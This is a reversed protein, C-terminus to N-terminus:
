SQATGGWAVPVLARIADSCNAFCTSADGWKITTDNWLLDAVKDMDTTTLATCTNFLNYMDLVKVGFGSRPLLSYVSCNLARCSYFLGKLLEPEAPFRPIIFDTKILSVCENFTHQASIINDLWGWGICRKLNVCGAFLNSINAAQKRMRCNFVNMDILRRAGRCINSFNTLHSAVPLDIDFIRSIINSQVNYVNADNDAAIAFYSNGYIKVIYKKDVETYKHVYRYYRNGEEGTIQEEPYDKLCDVTGDGWDICVNQQEPLQESRISFTHTDKAMIPYANTYAGQTYEGAAFDTSTPYVEFATYDSSTTASGSIDTFTNDAKKIRIVPDGNDNTSVFQLVSGEPVISKNFDEDTKIKHVKPM